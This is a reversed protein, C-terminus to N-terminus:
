RGAPGGGGKRRSGLRLFTPQELDDVKKLRLVMVKKTQEM